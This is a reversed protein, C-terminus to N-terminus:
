SGPADQLEAPPIIGSDMGAVLEDLPAGLYETRAAESSRRRYKSAEGYEGLRHCVNEAWGLLYADTPSGRIQEELVRKGQQFERVAEEERGLQRLADGLIVFPYGVRSHLSIARKLHPIAEEAKGMQVLKFGYNAAYVGSTPEAETAERYHHFARADNNLEDYCLALINHADAPLTQNEKKMKSQLRQLIELGRAPEDALRELNALSTLERASPYYLKNQQRKEELRRREELAARQRPSPARTALPNELKVELPAGPHNALFARFWMLKNSDIKLEIVVSDGRRVGPPLDLALTQVLSRNGESGSYVPFHVKAIGDKPIWFREKFQRFEGGIPYPLPTGTDVLKEHHDGHTILGIEANVIPIIPDYEQHHKYYCRVAAGRAVALDLNGKDLIVARGFIDLGKFARAVLPNRCSGGNLLVVDVADPSLRARELAELIPAFISGAYYGDAMTVYDDMLSGFFPELLVEFESFTIEVKTRKTTLGCDSLRFPDVTVVQRVDVYQARGRDASARVCLREKLRCAAEKLNWRLERKDRETLDEFEIGSSQCVDPLLKESVLLLDINDGGLRAYSSIALNEIFLGLPPNEEDKRVRLVSIDCTGGGFDFVLVNKFAFLDLRDIAQSNVLDLFAANPEDMLDGDGLKLGAMEAAKLTDKRQGMEFSAPVTIVVKSKRADEGTLEKAASVLRRLIEAQVKIPTDLRGNAADGYFRHAGLDSKASPFMSEWLRGKRWRAVAQFGAKITRGTSFLLSPLRPSCDDSEGKAIPVPEVHVYPLPHRESPNVYCISSNSTGLDIGFCYSARGM